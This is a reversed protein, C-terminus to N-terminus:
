NLLIPLQIGVTLRTPTLAVGIVQLYGTTPPTQTLTGDTSLYVEGPSWTWTPEDVEGTVIVIVDEGVSASSSAIGMLRGVTLVDQQDAYVVGGTGDPMVATHISISTSAIMTVGSFPSPPGPPGPPGRLIVGLDLVVQPTAPIIELTGSDIQNLILQVPTSKKIDITSANENSLSVAINPM